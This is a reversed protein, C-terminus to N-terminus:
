AATLGGHRIEAEAAVSERQENKGISLDKDSLQFRLANGAEEGRAPQRFPSSTSRQKFVEHFRFSTGRQSEATIGRPVHLPIKGHSEIKLSSNFPSDTITGPKRRAFSARRNFRPGSQANPFAPNENFKVFPANQGSNKM